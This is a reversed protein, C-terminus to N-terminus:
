KKTSIPHDKVHRGDWWRMEVTGDPLYCNLVKYGNNADEIKTYKLGIAFVAKDVDTPHKKDIAAVGCKDGKDVIFYWYNERDNEYDTELPTIKKGEIFQVDRFMLKQIRGKTVVRPQTNYIRVAKEAQSEHGVFSTGKERNREMIEDYMSQATIEKAVTVKWTRRDYALAKNGDANEFLVFKESVKVDSAKTWKTKFDGKSDCVIWEGEISQLKFLGNQFDVSKYQPSLIEEGNVWLGWLQVGKFKEGNTVAMADSQQDIVIYENQATLSISVFLILLIVATKKM